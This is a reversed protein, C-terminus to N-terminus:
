RTSQADIFIVQPLLLSQAGHILLNHILELFLSDLDFITVGVMCKIISLQDGFLFDERSEFNLGRFFSLALKVRIFNDKIFSQIDILALLCCVM